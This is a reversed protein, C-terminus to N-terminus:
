RERGASIPTDHLRWGWQTGCAWGTSHYGSPRRNRREVGSRRPRSRSHWHAWLPRGGLMPPMASRPVNNLTLLPMLVHAGTVGDRDIYLQANAGAQLVYLYEGITDGADITAVGGVWHAAGDGDAQYGILLEHLDIRDANGIEQVYSGVTFSNIVDTGNGGRGDASTLLRYIVTDTGGATLNITDNGALPEYFKDASTTDTLTDPGSTGQVVGTTVLVKEGYTGTGVDNAAIFDGDSDYVEAKM